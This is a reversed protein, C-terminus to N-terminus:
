YICSTTLFSTNQLGSALSHAMHNSVRRMNRAETLARNLSSSLSRQQHDMSFSRRRHGRDGSREDRSHSMSINFPQLYAQTATPSSFYLTSPYVPVYPVVPVGGLVTPPPAVAMNVSIRDRQQSRLPQNRTPISVPDQNAPQQARTQSPQLAGCLPCHSCYSQTLRPSSRSRMPRTSAATHASLCHPCAPEPGRSSEKEDSEDSRGASSGAQQRTSDELLHGFGARTQRRGRSSKIPSVPIHRLILSRPESHTHESDATLDTKPRYRPLSSRQRVAPRPTSEREKKEKEINRGREKHKSIVSKELHRLGHWQPTSTLPHTHDRIDETASPSVRIPSSLNSHRPSGELREKLINMEQQLLQLAEQHNTLQVSSQAKLHNGHHYPVHLSPIRHSSLQQNAPQTYCSNWAKEGSLSHVQDSSHESQSTLSSALPQLTCDPWHLPSISTSLSTASCSEERGRRKVPDTRGGSARFQEVPPVLFPHSRSPSIGSSQGSPPTSEPRVKNKMHPGPPKISSVVARQQLPNHVAPTLQTSESGMFGSDTEPSVVGDLPSPRAAKQKVKLGKNGPETSEALSTLSSSHTNRNGVMKRERGPQGPLLSPHCLADSRTEMSDCVQSRVSPVSPPVCDAAPQLLATITTERENTSRLRQRDVATENRPSPSDGFDLSDHSTLPVSRDLLSPLEKFSQYCDMLNSFDKEVCQHKDYLPHLLSPLIEDEERDVDSEGSVSSVEVGMCAQPHVASLPSEPLLEAEHMSESLIDTHPTLTLPCESISRNQELQKVWERLEELHMGSRFIQDELERDPDFHVPGGQRQQLIQYQSRADLYARELSEQGEALMSVGKIQECPKLKGNKLLKEFANVQLQFRHTQKTLTEILHDSTMSGLRRSSGSDVSSPRSSPKRSIESNNQTLQASGAGFEARQAQPFSLTMVKLGEQIVGSLIATSPKPPDSFLGVKAELRLRDITNEAEAYKTLLRNYDEQLQQVLTSAQQPCRFEEPVTSKLREHSGCSSPSGPSVDTNRLLVEKVIEAPSKFVVPLHSTKGRAARRSKPPKYGSKPFRVRPEVKSFDPLNHSLQGKRIDGPDTYSTKSARQSKQALSRYLTPPPSFKSPIISAKLQAPSSVECDELSGCNTKRTSPMPSQCNHASSHLKRDLKDGSRGDKNSKELRINMVPSRASTQPTVEYKLEEGSCSVTHYTKPTPSQHGSLSSKVRSDTLALEPFTEAEIGCNNMLEESSLHPFFSPNPTNACSLHSAPLFRGKNKKFEVFDSPKSHETIELTPINNCNEPFSHNMHRQADECTNKEETEEDTMDLARDREPFSNLEQKHITINETGDEDDTWDELGVSRDNDQEEQFFSDDGNTQSLPESDLLESLHYSMEELAPLPGDEPEPSKVDWLLDEAIEEDVEQDVELQRQSEALGIIGNEDMQRQFDEDPKEDLSYDSGDPSSPSSYAPAPTWVLVGATTTGGRSQDM